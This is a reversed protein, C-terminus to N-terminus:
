FEEPTLAMQPVGAEIRHGLLGAEPLLSACYFAATKVKGNLFAADGRGAALESRAARAMRLWAAGTAVLGFLRLYDSAAGALRLHDGEAQWACLRASAGRLAALAADFGAAHPALAADDACRATQDELRDLYRALVRGEDQVIKRHVLDLAQIANTGEYLPVIRADRYLQEMGHEHVYGHGGFVTVGLDTVQLASDSVFSKLVPTLLALEEEARARREEDPHRARVDLLLAADAYLARGGEVLAKMTALMRRVEPHGIIPGPNDQAGPARGQRRENAYLLANQYSIEAAGLSQVAVGIRSSNMMTFMAQMGGHERGLLWGRAGDFNLVATASGRIGMKHEISGCTVGNPAGSGPLNKPVVFLSIGRTGAPAGPLRALVLHVINDTLDHEGGSIFIKTGTVLHSGDDQPEARTRLLALDSGAQPETLCMTGSWSGDVLRPLYTKKLVDSGHALIARYAGQSLGAYMGFAMSGSAVLERVLLGLAAPLGQGGYAPDAALATWGAERYHRYAERYGPPAAVRGDEFRCGAEDGALNLPLVIDRAFAAANDLVAMALDLSTDELGELAGLVGEYDVVRELLFQMDRLPAQYIPM